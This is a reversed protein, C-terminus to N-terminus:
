KKRPVQSLQKLTYFERIEPRMRKYRMLEATEEAVREAAEADYVESPRDLMFILIMVACFLILLPIPNDSSGNVKVYWAIQLTIYVILLVIVVEAM